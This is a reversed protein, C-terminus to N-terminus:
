LAEVLGLLASLNEGRALLQEGAETLQRDKAKCRCRFIKATSLNVSEPHIM